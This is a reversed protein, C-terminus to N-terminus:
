EQVERTGRVQYGAQAIAQELGDITVTAPDYLITASNSRLDVDYAIVGPVLSL